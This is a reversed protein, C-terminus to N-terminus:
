SGSDEVPIKLSGCYQVELADETLMIQYLESYYGEQWTFRNPTRLSLFIRDSTVAVIELYDTRNAELLQGPLKVDLWQEGNFLKMTNPAQPDRFDSSFSRLMTSELICNPLIVCGFSGDLQADTLFTDEGTELNRDLYCGEKHDFGRAIGDSVYCGWSPLIGLDLVELQGDKLYHFYRLEGSDDLLESWFPTVGYAVGNMVLLSAINVMNEQKKILEPGHDAIRYLYGTMSGEANTETYSYIWQDSTLFTFSQGLEAELADTFAYELRLDTGDPAMSVLLDGSVGSQYLEPYLESWVTTYIRGDRSVIRGSNLSASCRGHSPHGCDPKSCLLVWNSLDTKDAYFLYEQYAYYYGNETEIMTNESTAECRGSDWATLGLKEGALKGPQIQPWGNWLQPQVLQLTDENNSCGPLLSLLLFITILGSFFRKM